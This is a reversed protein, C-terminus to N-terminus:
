RSAAADRSVTGTDNATLGAAAWIVAQTAIFGAFLWGAALPRVLAFVAAFLAATLLLKLAVGVYTARLMRRADGTASALAIRLGLVGNPLACVLGGLLASIGGIRGSVWFAVMAMLLAAGIQAAVIRLIATLPKGRVDRFVGRDGGLRRVSTKGDILALDRGEQPAGPAVLSWGSLGAAGFGM